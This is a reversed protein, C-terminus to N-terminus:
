SADVASEARSERDGNASFVAVVVIAAGPDRKMNWEDRPITDDEINMHSLWKCRRLTGYGLDM